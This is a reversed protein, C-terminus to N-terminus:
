DCTRTVRNRGEHKSRYLAVDARHLLDSTASKVDVAPQLAAIGLSVTLSLPGATTNFASEACDARIKEAVCHAGDLSTHPLVLTFEEGGYRAIWDSSERICASARHAFATLIEDGVLHGLTDNVKKFADLDAMVVSLATSYRRAREIDRPLQENLYRRNYCGLLPDIILLRQTRANAASLSRELDVIRRGAKVRALLEAEDAPKRLYDDAGAELGIVTDAVATHATLMLIYLYSPLQAARIRRCLTAGDLGPM